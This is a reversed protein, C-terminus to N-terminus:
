PEDDPLGLERRAEKRDRIQKVTLHDKLLSLALDHACDAHMWIAPDHRGEAEDKHPSGEYGQAIVLHEDAGLVKACV